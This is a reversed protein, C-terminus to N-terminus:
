NNEKCEKVIREADEKSIYKVTPIFVDKGEWCSVRSDKVVVMYYSTKGFEFEVGECEDLMEKYSKREQITFQFGLEGLIQEVDFNLEQFQYYPYHSLTGVVEYGDNGFGSTDKDVRFKGDTSQLGVLDSISNIVKLPQEISEEVEVNEFTVGENPARESEALATKLIDLFQTNFQEATSIDKLDVWDDCNEGDFPCDKCNVFSCNINDNIDLNDNMAFRGFIEDDMGDFRDAFIRLAESYEKKGRVKTLLHSKLENLKM